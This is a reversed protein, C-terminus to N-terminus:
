HIVKGCADKCMRVVTGGEELLQGTLPHNVNFAFPFLPETEVLVTPESALHVPM